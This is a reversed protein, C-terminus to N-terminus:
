AAPSDSTSETWTRYSLAWRRRVRNRRQPYHWDRLDVYLQDYDWPQDIGRLQEVLGRLRACLVAVSTSSVAIAVRRDLADPSVKDTRRRLALLAAGPAVDAVHMPTTKARQHLGFLALAAHEAGLEPPATTSRAAVADDIETSYYRWLKPVTGAERGLGSRLVALDEPGTGAPWPTGNKLANAYRHWHKNTM